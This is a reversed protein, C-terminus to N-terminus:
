LRSRPARYKERYEVTEALSMLERAHAWDSAVVQRRLHGAHDYFKMLPQRSGTIICVRWFM